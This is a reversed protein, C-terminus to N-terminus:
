RSEQHHRGNRTEGRKEGKIKLTGQDWTVLLDDESMGPVEPRVEVEKEEERIDLNPSIGLPGRWTSFLGDLPSLWRDSGSRGARAPTTKGGCRRWPVLSRMASVEKTLIAKLVL